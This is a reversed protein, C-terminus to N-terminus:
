VALEPSAACHRCCADGVHRQVTRSLMARASPPTRVTSEPIAQGTPLVLLPMKGMPHLAKYEDSKLGGLESPSKVDIRDNLGAAHIVYRVRAGADLACKQAQYRCVQVHKM